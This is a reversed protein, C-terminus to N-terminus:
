VGAFGAFFEDHDEPDLIDLAADADHNNWGIDMGMNLLYWTFDNKSVNPRDEDYNDKLWDSNITIKDDAKFTVNSSYWRKEKQNSDPYSVGTETPDKGKVSHYGDKFADMAHEPVVFSISGTAFLHGLTYPDCYSGSQLDNQGILKNRRKSINRKKAADTGSVYDPAHVCSWKEGQETVYVTLGCKPCPKKALIEM